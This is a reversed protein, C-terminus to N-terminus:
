RCGPVPPHSGATGPLGCVKRRSRISGPRSPASTPCSDARHVAATVGQPTQPGPKVRARGRWQGPRVWEADRGREAGTTAVEHAPLKRGPACRELSPLHEHGEARTASRTVHQRRPATPRRRDTARRRPIRACVASRDAPPSPLPDRYGGAQRSLVTASRSCDERTLNGLASVPMPRRRSAHSRWPTGYAGRGRGPSLSHAHCAYPRVSPCPCPTGARTGPMCAAADVGRAQRRLSPTARLPLRCRRVAWADPGENAHRASGRARPRCAERTQMSAAPTVSRKEVGGARMEVAAARTCNPRSVVNPCALAGRGFFIFGPRSLRGPKPHAGVPARYM